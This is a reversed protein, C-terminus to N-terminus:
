NNAHRDTNVILEVLCFFIWQAIYMQGKQLLLFGSFIIELKYSQGPGSALNLLTICHVM